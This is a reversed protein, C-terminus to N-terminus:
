LTSILSRAEINFMGYPMFKNIQDRTIWIYNDPIEIKETEPMEIIINNNQL